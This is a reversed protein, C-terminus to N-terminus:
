ITVRLIYRSLAYRQKAQSAQTSPQNLTKSGLFITNLIKIRELYSMDSDGRVVKRAFNTGKM